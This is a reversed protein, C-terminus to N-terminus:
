ALRLAARFLLQVLCDWAELGPGRGVHGGVPAVGDKGAAALCRIDQVRLANGDM